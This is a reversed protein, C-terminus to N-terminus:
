DPSMAAGAQTGRVGNVTAIIAEALKTASEYSLELCFRPRSESGQGMIDIVIGEQLQAVIFHDHYVQARALRFWDAEGRASGVMEVFKANGFECM